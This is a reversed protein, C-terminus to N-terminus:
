EVVFVLLTWQALSVRLVKRQKDVKRFKLETQFNKVKKYQENYVDLPPTFAPDIYFELGANLFFIAFKRITWQLHLHCNQTLATFKFAFSFSNMFIWFTNTNFSILIFATPSFLILILTNYNLWVTVLLPPLFYFPSAKTFLIIYCAHKLCYYIWISSTQM